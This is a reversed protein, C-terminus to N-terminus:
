AKQILKQKRFYYCFTFDGDSHIYLIVSLKPLNFGSMILSRQWLMTWNEQPYFLNKLTPTESDFLFYNLLLQSPPWLPPAPPPPANLWSQCVTMLQCSVCHPWVKIYTLKPTELLFYLKRRETHKTVILQWFQFIEVFILGVACASVPHYECCTWKSCIM